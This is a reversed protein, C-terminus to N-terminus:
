KKYRWTIRGYIGRPIEIGGGIAGTEAHQKELLNQGAISAEFQKNFQWSIKVDLIFYSPVSTIFQTSPLSSIYRAVVDFNLHEPLDLISQVLM